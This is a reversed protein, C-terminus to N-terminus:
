QNDPRNQGGQSKASVIAIPIIGSLALRPKGVNRLNQSFDVDRIIIHKSHKAISELISVIVKGDPARGTFEFSLVQHDEVEIPAPDIQVQISEFELDLALERISQQFEAAVVGSTVGIWRRDKITQRLVQSSQFREAWPNEDKLAELTALQNQAERLQNAVINEHRWFSQLLLSGVIAILFVLGYAVIPTVELDKRSLAM